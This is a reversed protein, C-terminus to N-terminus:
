AGITKQVSWSSHKRKRRWKWSEWKVAVVVAVALSVAMAKLLRLCDKIEREQQRNPGLWQNYSFDNFNWSFHLIEVVVAVVVAVAVAM